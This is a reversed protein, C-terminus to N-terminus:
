KSKRFKAAEEDTMERIDLIVPVIRLKGELEPSAQVMNKLIVRMGAENTGLMPGLLADQMALREVENERRTAIGWRAIQRFQM